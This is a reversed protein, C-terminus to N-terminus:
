TEPPLAVLKSPQDDMDSEQQIHCGACSEKRIILSMSARCVPCTGLRALRGNPFIVLRPDEMERWQRCGFCLGECESKRTNSLFPKRRHYPRKKKPRGRARQAPGTQPPAPPPKPSLRRNLEAGVNSKELCRLLDEAKEYATRWHQNTRPYEELQARLKELCALDKQLKSNRQQQSKYTLRHCTRCLFRRGGPPLYLLRARRGCRPCSFWLRQGEFATPTFTLPVPYYLHDRDGDPGGDPLDYSLWLQEAERRWSIGVQGDEGAPWYYSGRADPSLSGKQALRAIDLVLSNEVTRKAM